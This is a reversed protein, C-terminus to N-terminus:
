VGAILSAIEYVLTGFAGGLLLIVVLVIGM